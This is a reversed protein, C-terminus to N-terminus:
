VGNVLPRHRHHRFRHQLRGPGGSLHWVLGVGVLELLHTSEPLFGTRGAVVDVIAAALTTAALAAALPVLGIAREPRLAAWLLGIGLAVGFAGIHRSQHGGAGDVLGVLRPLDLVVLSAAVVGLAYRVWEGAGVQPVSLRAVVQDALRDPALPHRLVVVRRLDHARAEWARCGACTGLHADLLEIETSDAEGDMRASLVERAADCDM